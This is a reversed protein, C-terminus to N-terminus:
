LGGIKLTAKKGLGYIWVVLLIMALLVQAALLKM